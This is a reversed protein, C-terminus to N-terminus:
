DTLVKVCELLDEDLLVTAFSTDAIFSAALQPPKIRGQALSWPSVRASISALRGKLM